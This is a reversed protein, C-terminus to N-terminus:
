AKNKKNEERWLWAYFIIFGTAAVEIVSFFIYYKAPSGVFLTAIQVITTISGAVINFFRNSTYNLFRSFIVMSISIEMLLAAGLLFNQTIEMGGISGALYQKLFIPDMLGLVDCYLYNLVVFV